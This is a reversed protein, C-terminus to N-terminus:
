ADQEVQGKGNGIVQVAFFRFWKKVVLHLTFIPATWIYDIMLTIQKVQLGTKFLLHAQHKDHKGHHNQSGARQLDDYNVAKPVNKKTTM